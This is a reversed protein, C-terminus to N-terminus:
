VLTRSLQAYRCLKLWYIYSDGQDTEYRLLGPLVSLCDFLFYTTLYNFVIGSNSSVEGPESYNDAFFSVLIDVLFIIDIIFEQGKQWEFDSQEANPLGFAINYPVNM